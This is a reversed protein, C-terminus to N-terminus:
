GVWDVEFGGTSHFGDFFDVFAGGRAGEGVGDVEVAVVGEAGDDSIGIDRFKGVEGGEKFEDADDGATEDRRGKSGQEAGFAEDGEVFVGRSVEGFEAGDADTNGESADNGGDGGKEESVDESADEERGTLDTDGDRTTEIKGNVGGDGVGLAEKARVTGGTGDKVQVEEIAEVLDGTLGTAADHGGIGFEVVQKSDVIEAIIRGGGDPIAAGVEVAVVEGLGFTM